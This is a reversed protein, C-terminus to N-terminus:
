LHNQCLSTILETIKKNNPKTKNNKPPSSRTRPDTANAKLIFIEVKTIPIVTTAKAVEAGSNNTDRLAIESLLLLIANPLEIPDFM